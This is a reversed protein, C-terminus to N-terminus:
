ILSDSCKDRDSFIDRLFNYNEGFTKILESDFRKVIKMIYIDHKIYDEALTIFGRSRSWAGQCNHDSQITAMLAMKSDSVLAFGRGSKEQYITDEIPHYYVQGLNFNDKGFFVSAIKVGRKLAKNIESSFEDAERPWLSLLLHEQCQNIVEKTHQIFDNYSDMNWIYSVNSKGKINTLSHELSNITQNIEGRYKNVFDKSELPTYRKKNNEQMEMVLGQEMLRALVQYIKSTPLGANKATEYATAPGIELLSVYAASEYRSLGLKILQEIIKVTM